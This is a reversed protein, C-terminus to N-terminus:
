RTQFEREKPPLFVKLKQEVMRPNDGSQISMVGRIMMEKILTEERDRMSLKEALPAAVLYALLAGYYTTILAVAMAGGITKADNLNKLMLVLGILTGIMGFGPAYNAIQRLIKVGKSHREGLCDLETRLMGHIVEPDTGDVALQIGRVLFPDRIEHTVNELALIGDRRAIDAYRRFDRILSQPSHLHARFALGVVRLLERLDAMPYSVVLAAISGGITIYVSPLDLFISIDGGPTSLIGYTLIVAGFLLGLVTGFDM